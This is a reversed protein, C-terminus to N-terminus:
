YLPWATLCAVPDAAGTVVSRSPWGGPDFPVAADDAPQAGKARVAQFHAIPAVDTFARKTTPRKEYRRRIVGDASICPAGLLEFIREGFAARVKSRVHVVRILLALGPM